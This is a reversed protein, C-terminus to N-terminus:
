PRSTPRVIPLTPLIPQLPLVRAASSRSARSRIALYTSETAARGLNALLCVLLLSGALPHPGHDLIWTGRPIWVCVSATTLVAWSAALTLRYLLSSARSDQVLLAALTPGILIYTFSESGPGFVTMWVVALGLLYTVLVKPDQGRGRLHIGLVAFAGAAILEVARYVSFSLPHGVAQCLLGINRNAVNIYWPNGDASHLFAAWRFYQDVVYDFRQCGFPLALMAVFAAALWGASRRPFVALLLLALAIPYVKIIAALMAFLGCWGWREETAFTTALLLLSIVLGGIQGNLMVPATVPLVLLALLGFRDPTLRLCSHSWRRLAVYYLGGMFLRWLANGIGVPPVAFPVLFIATIPGYPFANWGAHEPYIPQGALWHRGAEAYVTFIGQHSESSFLLVRGCSVVLLIAWIALAARQWRDAPKLVQLYHNIV